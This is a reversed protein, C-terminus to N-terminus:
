IKNATMWFKSDDLSSFLLSSLYEQIVFYKYNLLRSFSLSEPHKAIISSFVLSLSGIVNMWLRVDLCSPFLDHYFPYIMGNKYYGKPDYLGNPHAEVNDVHANDPAEESQSRSSSSGISQTDFTSHTNNSVPSAMEQEAINGIPDKSDLSTPTQLAMTDDLDKPCVTTTM